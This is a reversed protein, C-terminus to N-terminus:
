ALCGVFMACLEIAIEAAAYFGKKMTKTTM